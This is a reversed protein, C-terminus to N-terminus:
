RFSATLEKSLCFWPTNEWFLIASYRWRSFIWHLWYKKLGLLLVPINAASTRHTAISVTIEQVVAPWLGHLSGQSYIICHWLKKFKGASRQMQNLLLRYQIHLWSHSRGPEAMGQPNRYKSCAWADPQTGLEAPPAPSLAPWQSDALVLLTHRDGQRHGGWLTQTM